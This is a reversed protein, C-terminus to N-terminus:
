TLVVPVTILVNSVSKMTLFMNNMALLLQFYIILVRLNKAIKVNRLQLIM